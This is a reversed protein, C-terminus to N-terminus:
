RATPQRGQDGAQDYEEIRFSGLPEGMAEAMALLGNRENQRHEVNLLRKKIRDDAVDIRVNRPRLGQALLWVHGYEYSARRVDRRIQLAFVEGLERNWGVRWQSVLEPREPDEWTWAHGYDEGALDPRDPWAKTARLANHSVFAESSAFVQVTRPAAGPSRRLGERRSAYEQAADVWADLWVRVAAIEQEVASTAATLALLHQHLATERDERRGRREQADRRDRHASLVRVLGSRHSRADSRAQLALSQEDNRARHETSMQASEARCQRMQDQLVPLEQELLVEYEMVAEHGPPQRPFALHAKPVGHFPQLERRSAAAGDAYGRDYQQDQTAPANM